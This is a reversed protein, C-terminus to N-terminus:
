VKKDRIAAIEEKNRLMKLGNMTAYVVNIPNRSRLCKTLINRVGAAELVARAATGAIIGTGPGAPKLLVRAAGCRGIVTHPITKDERISVNEMEEKAKKMGKQISFRVDNAKGIGVGVKGNGDGVVALTSFGFRKGGKVVKSVRNINVIHEIFEKQKTNDAM